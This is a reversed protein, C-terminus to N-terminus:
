FKRGMWRIINRAEKENSAYKTVGGYRPIFHIQGNYGRIDYTPGNQINLSWSNPGTRSQRITHVKDDQGFHTDFMLTNLIVDKMPIYERAHDRMASSLVTPNRGIVKIM